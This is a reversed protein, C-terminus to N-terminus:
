EGEVPIRGHRVYNGGVKAINVDTIQPLATVTKPMIIPRLLLGILCVAIITLVVKTYPSEQQM